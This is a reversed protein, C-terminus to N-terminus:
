PLSQNTAIDYSTFVCWSERGVRRRRRLLLVQRKCGVHSDLSDRQRPCSRSPRYSHCCTNTSTIFAYPHPSSSANKHLHSLSYNITYHIAFLAFLLSVDHYWITLTVINSTLYGGKFQVGNIACSGLDLEVLINNRGRKVRNLTYVIWIDWNRLTWTRPCRVFAHGLEQSLRPSSITWKNLALQKWRM